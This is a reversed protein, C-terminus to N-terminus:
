WSSVIEDQVDALADRMFLPVEAYWVGFSYAAEDSTIM